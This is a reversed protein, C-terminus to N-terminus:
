RSVVVEPGAEGRCQHVLVQTQRHGGDRGGARRSREATVSRLDVGSEGVFVGIQVETRDDLCQAALRGQRSGSCLKM